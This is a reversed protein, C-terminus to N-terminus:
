VPTLINLIVLHFRIEFWVLGFWFCGVLWGVVSVQLPPVKKFGTVQFKFGIQVGYSAACCDARDM